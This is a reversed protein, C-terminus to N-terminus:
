EIVGAFKFNFVIDGKKQAGYPVASHSSILTGQTYLTTKGTILDQVQLSVSNLISISGATTSQARAMARLKKAGASAASATVTVEVPSNKAWSYPLGDATIGMDGRETEKVDVPDTESSLHDIEIGAPYSPLAIVTVRIGNSSINASM